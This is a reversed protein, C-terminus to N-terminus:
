WSRSSVCRTAKCPSSSPRRRGSAAHPRAGRDPLAHDGRGARPDDKLSVRRTNLRVRGQKIRSLDLLDDVLRSLQETQRYAIDLARERDRTDLRATVVASRVASLPNRLEHSLTAFFEDKLISAAEAEACARQTLALLQEREAELRRRETVDRGIKSAGIIRGAADRIPSVTM